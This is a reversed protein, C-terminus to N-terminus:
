PQFNTQTTRLIAAGNAQQINHIKDYTTYTKLVSYNLAVVIHETHIVLLM